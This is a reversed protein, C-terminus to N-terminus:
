EYIVSKLNQIDGEKLVRNQAERNEYKPAPAGPFCERICYYAYLGCKNYHLIYEHRVAQGRQTSASTYECYVYVLDSFASIRKCIM